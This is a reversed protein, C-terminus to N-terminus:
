RQVGAHNEFFIRMFYDRRVEANEAIGAVYEDQMCKEDECM